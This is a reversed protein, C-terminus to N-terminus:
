KGGEMVVRFGLYYYTDGPPNWNRAASRCKIGAVLYEDGIPSSNELIMNRELALL